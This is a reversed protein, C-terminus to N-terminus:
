RAGGPARLIRSYDIASSRYAMVHGCGSHREVQHKYVQAQRDGFRQRDPPLKCEHCFRAYLPNLRWHTAAAAVLEDPMGTSESLYVRRRM